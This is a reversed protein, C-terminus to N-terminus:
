GVYVGNLGLPDPFPTFAEQIPGANPAVLNLLSARYTQVRASVGGGTGVVLDALADGDINKVAVRVGGRLDPSFAFFNSLPADLSAPRSPDITSAQLSRAGDLIMVRPGGNPGGGLVIEAFGDGNMDGSAVYVGDRLSPEFAFFDPILKVPTSQTLSKGDYLALRPGGSIGAGVILDPTGDNNIDGMAIRAGGRFNLDDIGFFNGIQVLTGNQFRFIQIRAGGGNDPSVVIEAKGDGDLDAAAVFLGINTFEEGPNTRFIGGNLLDTGSGGRLIRLRDGGGPGTVLINDEIGDGDVDGVTGRVEAAFEPFPVLTSVEVTKATATDFRYRQVTNGGGSALLVSGLPSPQPNPIPDVPTSTLSLADSFESTDGTTLDTATATLTTFQSGISSLSATFSANGSADSTVEISGVFLLGEPGSAATNAFIEIRFRRNPTSNISGQVTPTSGSTLSSLTPRNQLRNAGADPDQDDNATVGVPALDIGLGGNASIINSLIRNGTGSEVLVGALANNAIRNGAGAALGGITNNNGTIRLGNRANAIVVTNLDDVGSGIRMGTVSNSNGALVIGDGLNGSVTQRSGIVFKGALTNSNGTIHIGDGGNAIAKTSPGNIGVFNGEITNNDTGIFIGHGTNGSVTNGLFSGLSGIRNSSAGDRLSIGDGGNGLDVEAALDVGISNGDILTGTAKTGSLRIGDSTNGSIVNGSNALSPGIVNGGGSVFVGFRGNGIAGSGTPGVGISNGILQNSNGTLQVGDSGNGSITQYKGTTFDGQVTNSNGSIAVGALTNGLAATAGVTVGIRNSAVTNTNGAILVGNGLNGSILNGANVGVEGVFNGTAGSSVTVGNGGNAIASEGTAATGIFNQLLRNGTAGEAILVGDGSNGSILNRSDPLTGGLIHNDGTIRIGVGNPAATTGVENTGIFNGTIIALDSDLQIGAGSFNRINLGSISSGSHGTLTLGNVANGANTGDIAIRIISNIALPDTNNVSGPQTTGDIIVPATIAPLASEVSIIQTGEGPINFEITDIDASGNAAIIAERLSLVSDSDNVVDSATTVVFTAPVTRDELPLIKLPQSM